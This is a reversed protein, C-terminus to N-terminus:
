KEFQGVVWCRKRVEARSRSSASAMKPFSSRRFSV